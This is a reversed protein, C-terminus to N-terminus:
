IVMDNERLACQFDGFKILITQSLCKCIWKNRRVHGALNLSCGLRKTVILTPFTSLFIGECKNKKGNWCNALNEQLRSYTETINCEECALDWNQCCLLLMLMGSYMNICEETVCSGCHCKLSSATLWVAPHIHNQQMVSVHLNVLACLSCDM